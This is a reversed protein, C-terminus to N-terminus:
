KLTTFEEIGSSDAVIKDYLGISYRLQSEIISFDNDEYITEIRRFDTYGKNVVYVGQLTIPDELSYTGTDSVKANPDLVYLIKDHANLQTESDISRVYSFEGDVYYEKIDIPILEQQGSTNGSLISKQIQYTGKNYQISTKPVRYVEKLSIAENPIKLGNFQDYIIKYDIKRDSFFLDFYRDIQYVAFVKDGERYTRQVKVDVSLNKTPFFLSVYSRNELHKEAYPDIESVLYYLYNDVVKYLPDGKSISQKKTIDLNTVEQAFVNPNFNDLTVEEFGDITYSIVGSKAMKYYAGNQLQKNQNAQIKKQIQDFLDQDTIVVTQSIDYLTTEINDRAISAYNLPNRKKEVVYSRIRDKLIRYDNYDYTAARNLQTLHENIQENLIREMEQNQNIVCVYTNLRVKDGEPVFYRVPGSDNSYIVSENRVFVGNFAGENLIEGTEAYVYHITDKTISHYVIFLLYAMLIVYVIVVFNIHKNVKEERKKKKASAKYRNKDM